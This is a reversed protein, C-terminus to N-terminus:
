PSGFSYAAHFHLVVRRFLYCDIIIVLEKFEPVTRFLASSGQVRHIVASLSNFPIQFSIQIGAKRCYLIAPDNADNQGSMISSASDDDCTNM